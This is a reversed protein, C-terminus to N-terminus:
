EPCNPGVPTVSVTGTFTAPRGLADHFQASLQAGFPRVQQITLTGTSETLEFGGVDYMAVLAGAGGIASIAPGKGPSVGFTRGVIPLVSGVQRAGGLQFGFGPGAAASAVWVASAAGTAQGRVLVDVLYPFESPANLESSRLTDNLAVAVQGTPVTALGTVTFALLSPQCSPANTGGGCATLSAPLTALSYRCWRAVLYRNLDPPGCGYILPPQRPM